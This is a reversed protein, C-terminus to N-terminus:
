APRLMARAGARVEAVLWAGMFLTSGVAASLVGASLEPTLSRVVLLQLMLWLGVLVLCACASLVRANRKAVERMLVVFPIFFVCVASLIGMWLWPGERRELVFRTDEPLDGYWIVLSQTFFLYMWFVSFGFLLKGLDHRLGGLPAPSALLAAVAIGGLFSGMFYFGGILPSVWEPDLALVFDMAWLTLVVAYSILFWIAARVAPRGAVRASVYAIALGFVLLAGGLTRVYFAPLNLYWARGAAVHGVWPLWHPGVITLALLVGFSLPLLRVARECPPRILKSWRAGAVESVASLVVCGLAVGTVFLWSATIAALAPANHASLLPWAALVLGVASIGRTGLTSPPKGSEKVSM